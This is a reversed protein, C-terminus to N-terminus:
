DAWPTTLTRALFEAASSARERLPYDDFHIWSQFMSYWTGIVVEILTDADVDNRIAGDRFGDDMFERFAGRMRLDTKPATEPYAVTIMTGLLERTRPGMQEAREATGEFLAVLRDSFSGAQKRLQEVDAFLDQLARDSLERLVDLKTPFHKFFTGYAVDASEAIQNVTTAEYGQSEFLAVATSLIRERIELRRRERRSLKREPM